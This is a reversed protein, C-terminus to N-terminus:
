LRWRRTRFWVPAYALGAGALSGLLPGLLLAGCVSYRAFDTVGIVPVAAPFQVLWALSEQVWAGTHYLVPAAAFSLAKALGASAVFIGIHVNLILVVVLLAVHIGYWGPTLGFWFGLMVSVFILLPAVDGRLIAVLKKFPKPIFM